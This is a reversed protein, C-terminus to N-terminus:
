WDADSGVPKLGYSKAAATVQKEVFKLHDCIDESTYKIYHNIDVTTDDLDVGFIEKMLIMYERHQASGPDFFEVAKLIVLVLYLRTCAAMADVQQAANDVLM